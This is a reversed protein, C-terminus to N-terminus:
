FHLEPFLAHCKHIVRFLTYVNLRSLNQCAQYCIKTHKKDVRARFTTARNFAMYPSVDIGLPQEWRLIQTIRQSAGEKNVQKLHNSLPHEKNIKLKKKTPNISLIPIHQM